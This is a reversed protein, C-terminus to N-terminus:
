TESGNRKLYRIWSVKRSRLWFEPYILIMFPILELRGMLMNFIFLIKTPLLLDAYSGYPGIEGFGPGINGLTVLSGTFGVTMDGEVATM